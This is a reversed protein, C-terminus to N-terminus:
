GYAGNSIIKINEFDNEDPEKFSSRRRERDGQQTSSPFLICDSVVTYRSAAGPSLVLVRWTFM